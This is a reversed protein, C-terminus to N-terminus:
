PTELGFLIKLRWNQKAVEIEFGRRFNTLGRRYEIEDISEVYTILQQAALNALRCLEQRDAPKPGYQNTVLTYFVLLKHELVSWWTGANRTYILGECAATAHFSLQWAFPDDYRLKLVEISQSILRGGRLTGEAYPATKAIQYRSRHDAVIGALRKDVGALTECGAHKGIMAIREELTPRLCGATLAAETELKLLAAAEMPHYLDSMEFKEEVISQGNKWPRPATAIKIWDAVEADTFFPWQFPNSDAGCVRKHTRWVLKQHAPSCFWM